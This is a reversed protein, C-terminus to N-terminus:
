TDKKPDSEEEWVTTLPLKQKARRRIEPVVLDGLRGVPTLKITYVKCYCHGHFAMDLYNEGTPTLLVLRYLTDSPVPRNCIACKM